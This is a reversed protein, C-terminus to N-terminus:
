RKAKFGKNCYQNLMGAIGGRILLASILYFFYNVITDDGNGRKIVYM